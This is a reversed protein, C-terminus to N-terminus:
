QEIIVIYLEDNEHVHRANVVRTRNQRLTNTVASLTEGVTNQEDEEDWADPIVISPCQAAFTQRLPSSSIVVSDFTSMAVSAITCPEVAVM